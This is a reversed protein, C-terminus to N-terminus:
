NLESEMLNEFFPVIQKSFAKFKKKKKLMIMQQKTFIPLFTQLCNRDTLFSLVLVKRSQRGFNVKTTNQNYYLVLDIHQDTSLKTTHRM